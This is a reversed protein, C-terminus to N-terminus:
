HGREGSLFAAVEGYAREGDLDHAVLHDGRELEVFRADALHEAARRAARPSAIRDERGHVVLVPGRVAGLVEDSRAREAVSQASRVVALPWARQRPPSVEARASLGRAKPGGDVWPVLPAVMATAAALFGPVPGDARDGLYPAVLALRGVPRRAALELCLAGGLSFGVLDVRGHAAALEDFAAEVAARWESAYAGAFADPGLGHGPLLLTRVRREGSASLREPWDAFDAPTGGLGHVLLVAVPALPSGLDRAEVDPHPGREAATPDLRARELAVFGHWRLGGLLTGAFLAVALVLRRWRQRRREAAAVLAAVAAPEFPPPTGPSLLSDVAHLLAGGAGCFWDGPGDPPAAGFRPLSV